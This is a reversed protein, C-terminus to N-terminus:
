PWVVQPGSFRGDSGRELMSEVGDVVIRTVYTGAAVDAYDVTVTASPPDDPDLGNGDPSTFTYTRPARDAPAGRENLLVAVRQERYVPPDVTATITGSRITVGDVTKTSAITRTFTAAPRLMVAAPESSVADHPVPPDGLPVPHSVVVGLVGARPPDGLGTLDLTLLTDSVSDPPASVGGVLVQVGTAALGRGRIALTSAALVPAAPDTADEVRDIEPRKLTEVAPGRAVVPLSPQTTARNDILVVSVQFAITPRFHAQLATWMRSMEEPPVRVPVIRLGEVQDALGSAAVDDPLTPDPIAPALVERIQGRTLVANEHLEQGAHGLLIEAHYPETGYATLLYQLDVALPPASVRAGGSDREPQGVNAWGPNVAVDHLFLNLRSSDGNTVDILDPALASVEVSGIIAGVDAAVLRARLRSRLVATVAALAYATSM